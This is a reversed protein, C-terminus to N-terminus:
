MRGIQKVKNKRRKQQFDLRTVFEKLRFDLDKVYYETSPIRDTKYIRTAAAKTPERAIYSTSVSFRWSVGRRGFM